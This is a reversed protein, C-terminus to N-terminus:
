KLLFISDTLYVPIEKGGKAYFIIDAITLLYNPRATLVALPNLDYKLPIYDAVIKLM